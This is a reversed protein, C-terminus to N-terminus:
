FSFVAILNTIYSKSLSQASSDRDLIFDHIRGGRSSTRHETTHRNTCRSWCGLGSGIRTCSCWRVRAKGNNSALLEGVEAVTCVSVYDFAQM